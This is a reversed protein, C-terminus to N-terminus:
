QTVVVCEQDLSLLQLDKVGTYSTVGSISVLQNEETFTVTTEVSDEQVTGM